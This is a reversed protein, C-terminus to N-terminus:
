NQLSWKLDYVKDRVEDVKKNLELDRNASEQRVNAIRLSLEAKLAKTQQWGEDIDHMTVGGSLVFNENKFVAPHHTKVLLLDEKLHQVEKEINADAAESQTKFATIRANGTIKLRQFRAMNKDKYEETTQGGTQNGGRLRRENVVVEERPRAMEVRPRAVVEPKVVEEIIEKKVPAIENHRVVEEVVERKIPTPEERLVEKVVARKVPAPEERLVEKVVARKVPAPEVLKKIVHRAHAHADLNAVDGKNKQIRLHLKADAQMSNSHLEPLENNLMREVDDLDNSWKDLKDFEAGDQIGQALSGWFNGGKMTNQDLVYELPLYKSM